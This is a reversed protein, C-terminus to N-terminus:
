ERSKEREIFFLFSLLSCDIITFNHHARMIEVQKIHGLVVAFKRKLKKSTHPHNFPMLTFMEPHYKM